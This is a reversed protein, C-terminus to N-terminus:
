RPHPQHRLGQKRIVRLLPRQQRSADAAPCVAGGPTRWACAGFPPHSARSARNKQRLSCCMALGSPRGCFVADCTFRRTRVLLRVRRGSLPLNCRTLSKQQPASPPGVPPLPAISSCTEPWTMSRLASQVADRTRNLRLLVEIVKAETPASNPRKQQPSFSGEPM